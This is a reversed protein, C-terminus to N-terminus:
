RGPFNCQRPGWSAAGRHAYVTGGSMALLMMERGETRSRRLASKHEQSTIRFSLCFLSFFEERQFGSKLSAGEVRM